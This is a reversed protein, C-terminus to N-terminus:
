PGKAVSPEVSGVKPTLQIVLNKFLGALPLGASCSVIFGSRSPDFPFM